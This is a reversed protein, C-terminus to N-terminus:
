RPALHARYIRVVIMGILAMVALTTAVSKVQTMASAVSVLAQPLAPHILLMTAIGINEAYDALMGIVSIAIGARLLVSCPTMANLWRMWNILTLALLAPYLVDLPIQRKLYYSRGDNGLAELLAQAAEHSYGKFRLDFPQMDTLDRLHTLTVTVMLLYIAASIGLYILAKRFYLPAKAQGM